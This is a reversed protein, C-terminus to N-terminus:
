GLNEWQAFVAVQKVLMRSTSLIPSGLTMATMCELHILGPINKSKPPFLIAKLASFYSIKVLHYTFVSM